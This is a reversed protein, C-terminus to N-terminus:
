RSLYYQSLGSKLPCESIDNLLHWTENTVHKISDGMVKKSTLIISEFVAIWGLVM